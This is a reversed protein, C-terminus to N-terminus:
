HGLAWRLGMFAMVLRNRDALGGTTDVRAAYNIYRVGYTWTVRRFRQEARLQADLLSATEAEGASEHFTGGSVFTADEHLLAHLSPSAELGAILSTRGSRYLTQELGVRLGGVRSSDVERANGFTSPDAYESQQNILSAGAGVRTAPLFAYYTMAAAYDIRTSRLITSSTGYGIPGLPPLTEARLEFRVFPVRLDVIPAPV